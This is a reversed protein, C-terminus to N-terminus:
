ERRVGRSEEDRMSVEENAQCATTALRRQPQTRHRPETRRRWPESVTVETFDNILENNNHNIIPNQNRIM